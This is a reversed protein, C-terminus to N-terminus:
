PLRNLEEQMDILKNEVTEFYHDVFLFQTRMLREDMETQRLQHFFHGFLYRYELLEHTTKTIIDAGTSKTFLTDDRALRQLQALFDQLYEKIDNIDMEIEHLHILTSKDKVWQQLKKLLRKFHKLRNEHQRDDLPPLIKMHVAYLQHFLPIEHLVHYKWDARMAKSLLPTIHKTVEPDRTGLENLQNLLEVFHQGRLHMMSNSALPQGMDHLVSEIQSYLQEHSYSSGEHSPKISELFQLYLGDLREVDYEQEVLSKTQSPEHGVIWESFGGRTRVYPNPDSELLFSRYASITAGLTHLEFRQNTLASQLELAHLTDAAQGEDEETNSEQFSKMLTHWCNKLDRSQTFLQNQLANYYNKFFNAAKESTVSYRLVRVLERNPLAKAQKNAKWLKLLRYLRKFSEQEEHDLTSLVDYTQFKAMKKEVQDNLEIYQEYRHQFNQYRFGLFKQSKDLNKLLTHDIINGWLPKFFSLLKEFQIPNSTARKYEWLQSELRKIAWKLDEMHHLLNEKIEDVVKLVDPKWQEVGVLDLQQFLEVAMSQLLEAYEWLAANIKKAALQWQEEKILSVSQSQSVKRTFADVGDSLKRQTKTYDLKPSSPDIESPISEAIVQSLHTQKDELYHQLQTALAKEFSSIGQFDIPQWAM